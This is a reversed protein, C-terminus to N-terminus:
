LGSCDPQKFPTQSATNKIVEESARIILWAQSPSFNDNLSTIM